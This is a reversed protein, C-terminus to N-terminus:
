GLLEGITDYGRKTIRLTSQRMANPRDALDVIDRAVFVAVWRAMVDPPLGSADALDDVTLSRGDEEAMYLLLLAELPAASVLDGGLLAKSANLGAILLAALRWSRTVSGEPLPRVRQSSSIRIAEPDQDATGRFVHNTVWIPSGDVRLYRKTISCSSGSQRLHNFLQISAARDAHHTLELESKGILDEARQSVIAAFTADASVVEHDRNLLCQGVAAGCFHETDAFM